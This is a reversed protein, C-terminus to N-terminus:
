LHNELLYQSFEKIRDLVNHNNLVKRQGEMAIKSREKENKLLYDVKSLCDEISNYAVIEKDPVFIDEINDKWDTLLCSGVGTAEFLRINVANNGARDIHCNFTIKSNALTNFMDMGFLGDSSHKNLYRINAFNKWQFKLLNRWNYRFSATNDNINPICLNVNYNKTLEMLYELRKQHGEKFLFVSGIFTIDFKDESMTLKDIIDQRFGFKLTYGSMKPLAGYFKATEPICSLIIDVGKYFSANCFSIGDWCIVKKISPVKEVCMKRFTEDYFFNDHIFLVEPQIKEIQALLIEKRWNSHNFKVNNEKAWKFQLVESNTTFEHAEFQGTQELAVKWDNSWGYHDNMLLEDLEQYSKDIHNPIKNFFSNIYDDYCSSAKVFKFKRM